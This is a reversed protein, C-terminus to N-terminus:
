DYKRLVIAKKDFYMAYGQNYISKVNQDIDMFFYSKPVEVIREVVCTDKKDSEIKDYRANLESHFKEAKGSLLDSYATTINNERFLFITVILISGIYFYKQYRVSETNFRTRLYSLFNIVIIFWGSLFLFYLYNLIRDYPMIGSSWFMIFTGTFLFTFLVSVSMLPNITYLSSGNGSNLLKYFVPILLVTVPILPSNFIWTFIQQFVFTVSNIASFIFDQNNLYQEGRKSNGEASFSFYTVAINVIIFFLLYRNFKKDVILFKLFLFVVSMSFITAALENSGAVFVASLSCIAISIYKQSNTESRNLRLFFVYFLMSFASALRYNIASGLWYFGQGVSPMAYVFLFIFSLVILIKDKVIIGSKTIETVFLYFSYFFFLSILLAFLNYGAVSKLILPNLSIIAYYVIRGGWFKHFFRQADYFGSKKVIEEYYFDEPTPQNYFFLIIFPLITLVLFGILVHDSKIQFKQKTPNL